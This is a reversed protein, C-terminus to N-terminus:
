RLVLTQVASRAVVGDGRDLVVVGYRLTTTGDPLGRIEDLVEGHDGEGIVTRDGTLAPESGDATRIVLVRWERGAVGEVNWAVRVGEDHRDVRLGVAVEKPPERDGPEEAPLSDTPPRSSEPPLPRRTSTSVPADGVDSPRSDVPVTVSTTPPVDVPPDTRGPEVDDTSRPREITTTAVVDTVLRGDRVRVVAGAALTIEDITVRGEPGVTVVAGDVLAFGDAPDNVVAGDPLTVVVNVADSLELAAVAAEDRAVLAITAVLLVLAIVPGIVFRRPIGRPPPAPHRDAFQVRLGAELRDRTVADLEPVDSDALPGLPNSHDDTM